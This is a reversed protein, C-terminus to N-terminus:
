SSQGVEFRQAIRMAIWSDVESEVWASSRESLKVPAPFKGQNAMAYCYSRSIGTKALVEGIRILRENDRKNNVKILNKM